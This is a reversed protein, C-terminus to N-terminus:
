RVCLEEHFGVFEHSVSNECNTEDAQPNTAIDARIKRGERSMRDKQTKKKKVPQSAPM